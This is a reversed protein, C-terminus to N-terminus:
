DELEPEMKRFVPLLLAQLRQLAVRVGRPPDGLGAILAQLSVALQLLNRAMHQAHGVRGLRRPYDDFPRVVIVTPRM